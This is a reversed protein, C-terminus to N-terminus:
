VDHLIQDFLVFDDLSMYIALNLFIYIYPGVKNPFHVHGHGHGRDQGMELVVGPQQNAFVDQISASAVSLYLWLKTNEM